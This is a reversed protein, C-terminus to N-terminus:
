LHITTKLSSWHITDGHAQHAPWANESIDITVQPNTESGTNHCITIIPAPKAFVTGTSALLLVATFVVLMTRISKKYTLEM